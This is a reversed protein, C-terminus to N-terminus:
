DAPTLDLHGLRLEGGDQVLAVWLDFPADKDEDFQLCYWGRYNSKTISSSLSPTNERLEAVDIDNSDLSSDTPWTPADAGSQEAAVGLGQQIAAELASEDMQDRLWPALLQRADGFRRDIIAQGFKQLTEEEASM